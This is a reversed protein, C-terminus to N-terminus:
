EKPLSLVQNLVRKQLPFFCSYAIFFKILIWTSEYITHSGSNHNDLVGYFVPILVGIAIPLILFNIYLFQTYKRKTLLQISAFIMFLTISFILILAALGQGDFSYFINASSLFAGLFTGLFISLITLIIIYLIIWGIIRWNSYKRIILLFIGLIAFITHFWWHVDYPLQRSSDHMDNTIFEQIDQCTSLPKHCKEGKYCFKSQWKILLTIKAERYKILEKLKNTSLIYSDSLELQKQDKSYFYYIVDIERRLEELKDTDSFKLQKQYELLM